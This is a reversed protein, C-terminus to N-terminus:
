AMGQERLEAALEYLGGLDVGDPLRQLQYTPVGLQDIRARQEDELSRREAHGRAEDLLGDLLDPTADIGIKNLDAEIADRPLVGSLAAERAKEDLDQPRTLNVVVGGAPHASAHPVVRPLAAACAYPRCCAEPSVPSRVQRTTCDRAQGETQAVVAAVQDGVFRVVDTGPKSSGPGCLVPQDQWQLGYENVPVDKATYVAVVGPAVEAKSTDISTVRAHPRDSFLIKMHLMDPMTLDGSYLPEGTVKGRADVRPLSKGVTNHPIM